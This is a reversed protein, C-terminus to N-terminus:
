REGLLRADVTPFEYRPPPDGPRQLGARRRHERESWTARIRASERAIHQVAIATERDDRPLALIARLPRRRM